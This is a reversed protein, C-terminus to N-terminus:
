STAKFFLEPRDAVYVRAYFDGGETSEAMRAFKSSEYTVGAAWVEQNTLVPAVLSPRGYHGPEVDLEALPTGDSGAKSGLSGLEADPAHIVGAVAQEDLTYVLGDNLWGWCQQRGSQPLYTEFRCLSM